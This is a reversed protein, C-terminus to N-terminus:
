TPDVRIITRLINEEIAYNGIDRCYISFALWEIGLFSSLEHDSIIRNVTEIDELTIAQM